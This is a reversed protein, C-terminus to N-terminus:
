VHARGIEGIVINYIGNSDTTLTTIPSRWLLNGNSASDYISFTMNYDGNLPSGTSNTLKAHLNLTQPIAVASYISLSLFIVVLLFLNKKGRM